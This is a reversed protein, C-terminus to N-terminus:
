VRLGKFGGYGRFGGLGRLGTVGLGGCGRFGWGEFFASGFAAEPRHGPSPSTPRMQPAAGNERSPTGYNPSHNCPMCVYMFIPICM